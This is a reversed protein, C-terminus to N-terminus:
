SRALVVRAAKHLTAMIRALRGPQSALFWREKGTDVWLDHDSRWPPATVIQYAYFDFPTFM